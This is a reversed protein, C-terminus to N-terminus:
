MSVKVLFDKVLLHELEVLSHHRARLHPVETLTHQCVILLVLLHLGVATLEVGRQM